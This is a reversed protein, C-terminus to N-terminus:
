GVTWHGEYFSDINLRGISYSDWNRSAFSIKEMGVYFKEITLGMGKPSNAGLKIPANNKNSDIFIVFTSMDVHTSENALQEININSVTMTHINQLPNVGLLAPCVGECRWNSITFDSLDLATNAESTSTLNVYSAASGVLARSYESAQSIYRTHIIDVSDVTVNSTARPYWGFQIIPSNNTKCVTIREVHVNSYYTKLTDDGSHYFVDHYHSGPYIEM